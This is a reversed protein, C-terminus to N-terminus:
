ADNLVPFDRRLQHLYNFDLKAELICEENGAEALIEGFPGVIMSGGTYNEYPDRGVRNTGLVYCENEIARSQLLTRWHDKRQAPWSATVSFIHCGMESSKRFLEPFRLDYCIFPSVKWYKWSYYTPYVGPTFFLKEKRFLKMKHYCAVEYDWAPGYVSVRNKLGQNTKAIGSGQILANKEQALDYLFKATIGLDKHHFFEGALEPNEPFFGTAFMEPLVILSGPKVSVSELLRSVTKFNEEKQNFLINMQVLYITSM